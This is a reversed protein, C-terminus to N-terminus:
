KVEDAQIIKNLLAYVTLGSISKIGLKNTINKRHTVVTHVSICLKDAILKNPLGLAIAKLVEIERESLTSFEIGKPEQEKEYFFKQFKELIVRQDYSYLIFQECDCNCMIKNGIIMLKCDPCQKRLDELCKNQPCSLIGDSLILYDLKQGEKLLNMLEELNTTEQLDSEVGIVSLLTKIGLINLYQDSAILLQIKKDFYEV